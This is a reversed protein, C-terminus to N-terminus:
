RPLIRLEQSALDKFLEAELCQIHFPIGIRGDRGDSYTPEDPPAMIPRCRSSCYRGWGMRDAYRGVEVACGCGLCPREIITPRCSPSYKHRNKM